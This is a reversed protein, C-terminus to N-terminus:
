RENKKKKDLAELKAKVGTVELKTEKLLKEAIPSTHYPHLKPPNKPRPKHKFWSM